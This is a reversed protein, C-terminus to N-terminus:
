WLNYNWNWNNKCNVCLYVDIGDMLEVNHVTGCMSCVSSIERRGGEEEHFFRPPRHRGFISKKKEKALKQVMKELEKIRDELYEIDKDKEEM